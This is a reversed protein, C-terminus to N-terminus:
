TKRLRDVKTRPVAMLLEYDEGRSIAQRLNAGPSLPIKKPDIQFGVHSMRALRPLDANSDEALRGVPLHMSDSTDVLLAVVPKEEVRSEIRLSPGALILLFLALVATRCVDLARRLGRPLWPFRQRHRRSIWWAALVLAPLGVWLVQPRAWQWEVREVAATMGHGIGCWRMVTAALHSM